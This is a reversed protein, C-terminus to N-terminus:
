RDLAIKPRDTQNAYGWDIGDQKLASKQFMRYLRVNNFVDHHLQSISYLLVSSIILILSHIDAFSTLAFTAFLM